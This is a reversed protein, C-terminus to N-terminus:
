GGRFEGGGLAIMDKRVSWNFLYLVLRDSVAARLMWCERGLELTGVRVPVGLGLSAEELRECSWAKELEIAAPETAASAAALVCFVPLSSMVCTYVARLYMLSLDGETTGKSSM